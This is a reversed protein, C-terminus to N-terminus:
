CHINCHKIGTNFCQTQKQCWAKATSVVLVSRLFGQLFTKQRRHVNQRAKRRLVRDMWLYALPVFRKIRYVTHRLVKVIMKLRVSTDVNEHRNQKSDRQNATARGIYLNGGDLGRVMFGLLKFFDRLVSTDVEWFLQM